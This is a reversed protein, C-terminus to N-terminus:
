RRHRRIRVRLRRLQGHLQRDQELRRHRRHPRHRRGTGAFAHIEKLFPDLGYRNAVICFAQVQENTANGKICTAKITELLKGADMSYRESLEGMVTRRQVPVLATGGNGNGNSM